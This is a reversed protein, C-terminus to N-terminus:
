DAYMIRIEYYENQYFIIDSFIDDADFYEFVGRLKDMEPSPSDVYVTKNTLIAEKLHPFNNMQQETMNVSNGHGGSLKLAEISQQPGYCGGLVVSVLIVLIGIIGLQKKLVKAEL